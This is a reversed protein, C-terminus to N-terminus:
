ARRIEPAPAKTLFKQYLFSVLMLIIALGIISAVRYLQGLRWLDHLFVKVITVMLLGLSAYRTGQSTQRIGVCLLIIAFAAWALSYTMDQALSSSFNFTITAGTSFFDAIEINLLFFTLTAGLSNMLPVMNNDMFLHRPPKLLRASVFFCVASVGYVFLYWNLFPTGTREHYSFIAPNVTLRAFAVLLLAIAWTKLGEHPVRHYLWLLAAGELAWGLTIWEKDFQLPIVLTIFLLAIGGFWALMSTRRADNAPIGDLIEYLAALAPIAFFVPILGIASKGVTQVVADYVMWFHVPGALAAATWPMMGKLHKKFLFPFLTFVFYFAAYWILGPLPNQPTFNAQHWVYEVFGASFLTFISVMELARYRVLGLLLITMLMMLGFVQSPDPLKLKICVMALLLFPMLASLAPLQAADQASIGGAASLIANGAFLSKKRTVLLAWAFFACSFFTLLTLIGPLGGVDPLRFLWVGFCGMVLLVTGVAALLSGALWAVAIALMGLIMVFPWMVFSLIDCFVMAFLILVLMLLPAAYGWLFPKKSPQLRQLMIPLAAHLVAFAMYYGLGWLLLDAKLYQTTWLALLVFTFLGGLLYAPRSEERRVALFSLQANLALLFSLVLEPRAALTPLGLMNAAFGMSVLPVVSSPAHFLTDEKMSERGLEGAILYFFSFLMYIGVALEGKPVAFFKMTWGVEMLLTAVASLSMLFGWRKKLAVALLGTDLLLIYSFLAIPHDEGTSLLIPTLFGGLLGLMAVYKSDLRVALFFSTTTILIMLLFAAQPSLFNYFSHCAFTDAYLISIGAACLTQVTVAYGKKRLLLGWIIVGIGAVFGVMVRTEPSILNHDISYKVFFAMGLFLAFGGLWAFLKVGMFKEWDIPPTQMRSDFVARAAAAPSPTRKVRLDFVHPGELPRTKEPPPVVAPPPPEVSSAKPPSVPAPSATPGQDPFSTGANLLRNQLRRVHSELEAVRKMLQEVKFSLDQSRIYAMFAFAVLIVFLLFAM